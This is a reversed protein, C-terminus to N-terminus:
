VPLKKVRIRLDTVTVMSGHQLAQELVPLHQQLIGYFKESNMSDMRFTIISPFELSGLAVIRSFDLDFTIIIYHYQRAYHVIQVDDTEELGVETVHSAEYGLSELLKAFSRPLNEDILFKM